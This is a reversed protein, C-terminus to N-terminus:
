RWPEWGGRLREVFEVLDQEAVLRKGGLKISPLQDNRILGYLKSRGISLRDGAEGITWLLRPPGDLPQPLATAEPPATPPSPVAPSPARVAALLEVFPCTDSRSTM